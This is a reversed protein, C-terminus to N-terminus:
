KASRLKKKRFLGVFSDWIERFMRTRGFIMLFTGNFLVTAIVVRIILGFVGELPVLGLIPKTIFYLAAILFIYGFYFGYYELPNRKFCFRYILVVDVLTIVFFRSIATAFFIGSLGILDALLISAGINLVAAILPAFRGQRFLGLTTRFTYTAFQVSSVYFSIVLSIVTLFSLVYEDGLWLEIVDNFFLLMGFSVFGFIWVTLFFLKKFVFYQKGPNDETNLNGISATFSNTVKSLVTTFMNTIMVYNSVMGVFIVSFMYSIIINDTGNLIASGFKYLALSKVNSFITKKEEKPLETSKEKLFPYMKNAKHATWINNLLTCCIQIVLFLIFNKTLLLIVSQAIVQILTTLEQYINVVYQRQDAIIISKKYVFFYSSASNVLYLIYILYINEPIDPVDGIMQGLFPIVCLGAGLVVSGIITYAKRYLLMISKLKETDQNALPKYMSFIMANGIGLEAFSLMTLINTFLGSIGLYVKGLMMIFITRGVFQILMNLAQCVLSITVNRAVNKTRSSENM